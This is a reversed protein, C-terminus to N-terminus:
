REDAKIWKTVAPPEYGRLKDLLDEATDATVLMDRHNQKMFGSAVVGDLFTTLGDYFGAVNYIACPKQHHGLQAWTWVEFLEEFTGIGGPLAIFGDSLEAMLAKREHMSAVVRLDTLGAHAIEKKKLSEPIVGIVQGGAELVADAVAGMLGVSAGGYVLGIGAGALARGLGRAAELHRPDFGPSSGCFVCLRQM